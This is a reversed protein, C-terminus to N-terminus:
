EFKSILDKYKQNHDNAGYNQINFYSHYKKNIEICDDKTKNCKEIYDGNIIKKSRTLCKFSLPPSPHNASSQTLKQRENRNNLQNMETKVRKHMILPLLLQNPSSFSSTVENLNNLLKIKNVKVNQKYKSNDYSKKFVKVGYKSMLERKANNTTILDNYLFEESSEKHDLRQKSLEIIFAISQNPKTSTSLQNQYSSIIHKFEKSSQIFNFYLNSM